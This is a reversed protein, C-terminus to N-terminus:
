IKTAHSIVVAVPHCGWLFMSGGTWKVRKCAAGCFWVAELGNQLGSWLVMSGGTWKALREVFGYQRWDMKCAAGCFWVAELGNQLGSWLVMSGGTWKALREVSCVAELGNLGKALREVSGYQRWDM